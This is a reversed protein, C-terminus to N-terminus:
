PDRPEISRLKWVLGRKATDDIDWAHFTEFVCDPMTTTVYGPPMWGSTFIRVLDDDSFSAIRAPTLEGGVLAPRNFQAQRAQDKGRESHQKEEV